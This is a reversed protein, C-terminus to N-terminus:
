IIFCQINSDHNRTILLDDVYLILILSKEREVYLYMNYDVENRQLGQNQIFMDIKNYWTHPAQRLGYFAKSLKCIKTEQDLIIFGKTYSFPMLVHGEM